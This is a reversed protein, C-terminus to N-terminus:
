TGFREFVAVTAVRARRFVVAPVVVFVVDAVAAVFAFAVVALPPPPLSPSLAAISVPPRAVAREVDVIFLQRPKIGM